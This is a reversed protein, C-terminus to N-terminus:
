LMCMVTTNIGWNEDSPDHSSQPRYFNDFWVVNNVGATKAWLSQMALAARQALPQRNEPQIPRSRGRRSHRRLRRGVHGYVGEDLATDVPQQARPIAELRCCCYMTYAVNM